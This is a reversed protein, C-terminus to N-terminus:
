IIRVPLWEEMQRQSPGRVQVYINSLNVPAELFFFLNWLSMNEPFHWIPEVTLSILCLFVFTVDIKLNGDFSKESRDM